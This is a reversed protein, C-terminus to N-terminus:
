IRIRQKRKPMVKTCGELVSTLVAEQKKAADEDYRRRTRKNAATQSGEVPGGESKVIARFHSLFNKFLRYLMFLVFRKLAQSYYSGSQELVENLNSYAAKANALQEDNFPSTNISSLISIGAEKYEAIALDKAAILELLKKERASLQAQMHILPAILHYYVQFYFKFKIKCMFFLSCFYYFNTNVGDTGLENLNELCFTTKEV